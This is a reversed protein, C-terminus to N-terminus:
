PYPPGSPVEGAPGSPPAETVCSFTSDGIKFSVGDELKLDRAPAGTGDTLTKEGLAKLVWGEPTTNVIAHEPAVGSGQIEVQNAESAGISLGKHLYLEEGNGDTHIVRLLLKNSTKSSKKTSM